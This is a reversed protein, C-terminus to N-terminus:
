RVQTSDYIIAEDENEQWMVGELLMDVNPRLADKNDKKLSFYVTYPVPRVDLSVEDELLENVETQATQLKELTQAYEAASILGEATKDKAQEYAQAKRLEDDSVHHRVLDARQEELAKIADRLSRLTKYIKYSHAPEVGSYELNLIASLSMLDRNTM